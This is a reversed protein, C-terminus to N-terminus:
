RNWVAAQQKAEIIGGGIPRFFPGPPLAHGIPLHEAEIIGGGIPRFFLRESIEAAGESARKM